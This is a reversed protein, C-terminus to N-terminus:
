VDKEELPITELKKRRRYARPTRTDGLSKFQRSAVGIEKKV